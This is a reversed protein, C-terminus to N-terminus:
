HAFDKTINHKISPNNATLSLLTSLIEPILIIEKLNISGEKMNVKYNKAYPIKHCLSSISM